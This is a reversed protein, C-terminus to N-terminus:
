DLKVLLRGCNECYVMAGPNYLKGRLGSSIYVRCGSCLDEVVRALAQGQNKEALMVYKNMYKAEIKGAINDREEKLRALERELQLLEDALQKEKGELDQKSHNLEASIQELSAEQEEISEMLNLINDELKKKEAALLDMKRQMQELEKINSVKGGYMNESLEKRDDVIKQTNMELSRLAKRDEKFRLEAESLQNNLEKLREAAQDVGSQLPADEFRKKVTSIALDLEQLDWLLQLQM